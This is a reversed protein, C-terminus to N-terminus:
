SQVFSRVDEEDERTIIYYDRGTADDERRGEMDGSTTAHYNSIVNLWSSIGSSQDLMYAAAPSVWWVVLSGHSIHM